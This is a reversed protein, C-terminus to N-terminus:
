IRMLRRTPSNLYGGLAPGRGVRPGVASIFAPQYVPAFMTREHALQQITHLIAERKTRDLAMSQQQFLADMDPYSGHAYAGGKIM